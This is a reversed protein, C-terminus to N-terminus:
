SKCFKPLESAYISLIKNLLMSSKDVERILPHLTLAQIAKNINGELAAEATLTEYESILRVLGRIHVCLDQHLAKMSKGNVNATVEIISNPSLESFCDFNKICIIHEDEKVNYYSNLFSAVVEGLLYGGRTNIFFDPWRSTDGTKFINFIMNNSNEVQKARSETKKSLYEIIKSTQYYYVLYSSPIANISRIFDTESIPLPINVQKICALIEDLNNGNIIENIISVNDVKIDTIWGLHNLGFYDVSIQDIDIKLFNAIKKKMAYPADCIGVANLGLVNAAYTVIGSPNTINLFLTDPCNEKIKSAYEFLVQINRLASSFGGIGQSEQGLIGFEQGLKEDINRGEGGRSRYISIIVDSGRTNEDVDNCMIMKVNNNHIIKACYNAIIEMNAQIKDIFVIEDIFFKKSILEQIIIPIYVSGGGLFTIKM